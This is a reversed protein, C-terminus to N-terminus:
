VPPRVPSLPAGSSASSSMSRTTAAIAKIFIDVDKDKNGVCYVQAYAVSYGLETQAKPGNRLTDRCAGAADKLLTEVFANPDRGKLTYFIQETLIDKIDADSQDAPIWEIWVRKDDHANTIIKWPATAPYPPVLLQETTQPADEAALCQANPVFFAAIGALAAFVAHKMKAGAVVGSIPRM